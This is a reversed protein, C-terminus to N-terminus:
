SLGPFLFSLVLEYYSPAAMLLSDSIERTQFLLARAVPLSFIRLSCGLVSHYGEIVKGLGAARAYATLRCAVM